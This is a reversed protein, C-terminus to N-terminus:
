GGQPRSLPLVVQVKTGGGAQSHLSLTGNLKEVRERMQALGLHGHRVAHDLIAPDFGVGDDRITLAVADATELSLEVWAMSARAHKGVNNLAEQIIRFLVPELPPSLREELGLVHLDVYLQNQEGFDHVFQRLAPFFGLEDLSVPRLAFISRRVERINERLLDQLADLEAHMQAPDNDVLDHWLGVRVHLSALDQALGDHIERAIRRREEAIAKEESRREREATIDEITLIVRSPDFVTKSAASIRIPFVSGDRRQNVSEITITEGARLADMIRAMEPIADPPVIKDVPVSAFEQFTWGYVQEARRNARTITPPTQTLDVEFICLPADEFLARFREESERLAEEAQKRTTIDRLVVQVAPQGQYIIPIEMAEADVSAGDLRILKEEILPTAREATTQLARTKAMELHDPRVFDRIPKGILEEPRSAGFLEAGAANIYVIKGEKHVAIANFSLEVLRRYREESERLAEMARKRETIERRLQENVATLEATREKVAEQLEEEMRKRETIDRLISLFLNTHLPTVTVEVPIRTGDRHMVSTEFRREDALDPSSYIALPPQTRIEPPELDSTKMTLLEAHTYGLLESTARNADLIEENANELIIVDHAQDFLTRYREESKRLAEEALRKEEALRQQHLVQEIVAPLLDLYRGDVDKVIYDRAGLKMAEVAIQESGTGTVMITPPLPAQSAMIRIVELGDHVPMNQDVAVVDYSGAAYMDLGEEGDRALDAVYGAQELRMQVLRALGPDDEMCLIRAKAEHEKM